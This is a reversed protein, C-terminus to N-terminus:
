IYNEKPKKKFLLEEYVEEVKKVMNEITFKEIVFERANKGLKNGKEQENILNMVAESIEEHNGPRVLYGTVSDEIQETIGEINTAIIPKAMAMAELIIMPFGELISPVVLLDIIKLISRIDDIFGTFIVRDEIKLRQALSKLQEELPGSGVVLFKVNDNNRLIKPISKLFYEFGKQWCLRGIACVTYTGDVINLLKKLKTNNEIQLNPNYLETEIGNYIKAIKNSPIKRTKILFDKLSDSVVIYRDVYRELFRDFFQYLKKRYIGVNFGDVPMQITSILFPSHTFKIAIRAFFDARAGQTHILDIKKTKILYALKVVTFTNYKSKMRLPLLPVGLLDLKESFENGPMCGVYVEFRKKNLAKIIQLFGREGGGFELNDIIFLIKHSM